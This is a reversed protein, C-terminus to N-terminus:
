FVWDPKKNTLQNVLYRIVQDYENVSLVEDHMVEVDVPKGDVPNPEKVTDGTPLSMRYKRYYDLVFQLLRTGEPFPLAELLHLSDFVLYRRGSDILWQKLQDKDKLTVRDIAEQMEKETMDNKMKFVGKDICNINM